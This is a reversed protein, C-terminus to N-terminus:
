TRRQMAQRVLDAFEATERGVDDSAVVASIAVTSDAGAVIVEAVSERTIGGVAVIPISVAARVAEIMGIGCPAGADEKTATSFIPCLGVYDAGLEEATRAEAVDHVTLGIIKDDGLLKRAIAFPMDDQGIHVGDADVALAVDIRDNILFFARGACIDKLRGAEEVMARTPLHKERYQVIRCGAEVTKAVDDLTGKRSLASDSIFYYGIDGMDACM